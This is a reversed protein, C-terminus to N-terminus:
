FHANRELFLAAVEMHVQTLWNGRPSLFVYKCACAAEGLTAHLPM